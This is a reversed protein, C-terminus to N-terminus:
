FILILINQKNMILCLSLTTDADKLDTVQLWKLGLLRGFNQCEASVWHDNSEWGRGEGGFFFFNCHWKLITALTITPKSWQYLHISRPKFFCHEICGHSQNWRIRYDSWEEFSLFPFVKRLKKFSRAVWILILDNAVWHKRRSGNIAM